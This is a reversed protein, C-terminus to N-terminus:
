QWLSLRHPDLIEDDEQDDGSAQGIEALLADEGEAAALALEATATGFPARSDSFLLGLIGGALQLEHRYFHQRSFARM